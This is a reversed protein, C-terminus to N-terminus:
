SGRNEEFDVGSDRFEWDLAAIDGKERDMALGRDARAGRGGRHGARRAGSGGHQAARHRKWCRDGRSSIGFDDWATPSHRRAGRPGVEGAERDVFANQRNEAHTRPHRFYHGGHRRGTGPVPGSGEWELGLLSISWRTLPRAKMRARWRERRLEEAADHLEEHGIVRGVADRLVWNSRHVSVERVTAGPAGNAMRVLSPESRLLNFQENGCHSAFNWGVRKVFDRVSGYRYSVGERHILDVPIHESALTPVSRRHNKSM